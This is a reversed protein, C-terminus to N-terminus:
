RALWADSVLALARRAVPDAAFRRRVCGDGLHNAVALFLMAQDLVLWAPAVRGTRPDVSDHFGFEGYVPYREALARLNATAPGPELALALASAYPAVAEAPYGRLGLAPVGYEAYHPAAPSAAPSM